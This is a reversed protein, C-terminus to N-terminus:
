AQFPLRVGGIEALEANRPALAGLNMSPVDIMADCWSRQALAFMPETRTRVLTM